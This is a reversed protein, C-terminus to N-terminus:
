RIGLRNADPVVTLQLRKRYKVPTGNLMAPKYQWSRAANVAMRDYQPNLSTIVVVSDVTGQESIFVDITALGSTLVRGPFSPVVQRITQPPVVNLDEAGYIRPGAVIAAPPPAVPPPPEAATTEVPGSAKAALEHFGSALVKLDSLPPQASAMTLDPDALGSLVVQFGTAAAAYNKAEFAARAV